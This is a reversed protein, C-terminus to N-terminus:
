GVNDKTIPDSAKRIDAINAEKINIPRRAFSPMSM